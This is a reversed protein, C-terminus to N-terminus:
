LEISKKMAADRVGALMTLATECKAAIEDCRSPLGADALAHRFDAVADIVTHLARETQDQEHMRLVNHM